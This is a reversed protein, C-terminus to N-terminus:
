KRMDVVALGGFGVAMTIVLCLVVVVYEGPGAIDLHSGFLTGLVVGLMALM